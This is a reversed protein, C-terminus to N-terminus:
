RCRALAVVIHAVPLASVCLRGRDEIGPQPPREELRPGRALYSASASQSSAGAARAACGRSSWRIGSITAAPAAPPIRGRADIPSTSGPAGSELKRKPASRVGLPNSRRAAGAAACVHRTLSRPCPFFFVEAAFPNFLRVLERKGLGDTRREASKHQTRKEIWERRLGIWSIARGVAVDRENRVAFGHDEEVREQVFRAGVEPSTVQAYGGHASTRAVLLCARSNQPLSVSIEMQRSGARRGTWITGRMAADFFALRLGWSVCAFADDRRRAHLNARSATAENAFSAVLPEENSRAPTRPSPGDRVAFRCRLDGM